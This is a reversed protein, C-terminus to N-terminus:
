HNNAFLNNELGKVFFTIEIWLCINEFTILDITELWEKEKM